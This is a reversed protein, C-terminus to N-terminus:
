QQGDVNQRIYSAGDLILTDKGQFKFDIRVTDTVGLVTTSLEMTDANIVVYRMNGLDSSELEMVSGDPMAIRQHLYVDGNAEFTAYIEGGNDPMKQYWTGVVQEAAQEGMIPMFVTIYLVAAILLACVVCAIVYITKKM